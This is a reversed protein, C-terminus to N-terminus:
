VTPLNIASVRNRPFPDENKCKSKSCFDTVFTFTAKRLLSDQWLFLIPNLLSNLMLLAYTIFYLSFFVEMNRMSIHALSTIPSYCVFIVVVIFLLKRSMDRQQRRHSSGRHSQVSSRAVKKFIKYYLVPFLLITLCIDIAVVYAFVWVMDLVLFVTSAVTPSVLLVMVMAARRKNFIDHYRFPHCISFYRDISLFVMGHITLSSLIYGCLLSRLFVSCITMPSSNDIIHRHSLFTLPISVTGTLFDLMNMCAIGKYYTKSRLSKTSLITLTVTINVLVILVAMCSEIPILSQLVAFLVSSKSVNVPLDDELDESCYIVQLLSNNPSAAM